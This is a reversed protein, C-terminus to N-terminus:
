ANPNLVEAHANSGQMRCGADQMRCGADQMWCGADQWVPRGDCRLQLCEDAAEKQMGLKLLRM